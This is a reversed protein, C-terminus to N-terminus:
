ARESLSRALAAADTRADDLTPSIGEGINHGGITVAWPWLNDDRKEVTLIAGRCMTTLAGASNLQWILRPPQRYEPNAAM